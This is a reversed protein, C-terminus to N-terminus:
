AARSPGKCRITDAILAWGDDATAPIIRFPTTPARPLASAAIPELVLEGAGREQFCGVFSCFRAQDSGFELTVPMLECAAAQAFRVADSRRDAHALETM